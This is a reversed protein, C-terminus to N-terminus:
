QMANRNLKTEFLFVDGFLPVQEKVGSRDVPVNLMGSSARFLVMLKDLCEQNRVRLGSTATTSLTMSVDNVTHHTWSTQGVRFGYVRVAQPDASSSDFGLGIMKFNFPLNAMTECGVEGGPSKCTLSLSDAFYTCKTRTSQASACVILAVLAILFKM